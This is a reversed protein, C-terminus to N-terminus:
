RWAPTFKVYTGSEHQSLCGKALARQGIVRFSKPVIGSHHGCRGKNLRETSALRFSFSSRLKNLFLEGLRSFGSASAIRNSL